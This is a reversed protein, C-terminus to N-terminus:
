FDITSSVSKSRGETSQRMPSKTVSTGFRLVCPGLKDRDEETSLSGGPRVKTTNRSDRLSTCVFVDISTLNKCEVSRQRQRLFLRFMPSSPRTVFSM